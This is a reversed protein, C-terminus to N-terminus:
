SVSRRRQRLANMVRRRALHCVRKVQKEALAAPRREFFRKAILQQADLQQLRPRLRQRGPKCDNGRGPACSADERTEVVVDLHEARRVARQCVIDMLSPENRRCGLPKEIMEMEDRGLDEANPLIERARVIVLQGSQGRPLAGAVGADVRHRQFEDPVTVASQVSRLQQAEHVAILRHGREGDTFEPGPGADQPQGEDLIEPPKRFLDELGATRSRGGVGDHRLELRGSHRWRQRLREVRRAHDVKKLVHAFIAKAKGRDARDDFFVQGSGLHRGFIRNSGIMLGLWGGLHRDGVDHSAETQARGEVPALM